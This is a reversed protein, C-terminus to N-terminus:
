VYPVFLSNFAHCFQNCVSSFLCSAFVRNLLNIYMYSEGAQCIQKLLYIELRSRTFPLILHLRQRYVRRHEGDNFNIYAAYFTLSKGKYKKKLHIYQSNYMFYNM